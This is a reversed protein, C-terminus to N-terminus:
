QYFKWNKFIIRYFVIFENLFACSIIIINHKLCYEGCDTEKGSSLGRQLDKLNIPVQTGEKESSVSRLSAEKTGVCSVSESVSLTMERAVNKSM